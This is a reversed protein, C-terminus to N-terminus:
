CKRKPRCDLAGTFRTMMGVAIAPKPKILFKRRPKDKLPPGSEVFFAGNMM